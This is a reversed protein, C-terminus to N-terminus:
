ITTCDHDIDMELVKQGEWISFKTDISCYTEGMGGWREELVQYGGNEKGDCGEQIYSCLM